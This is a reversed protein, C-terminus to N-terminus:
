HPSLETDLESEGEVYFREEIERQPIDHCVLTATERVFWRGAPALVFWFAAQALLFTSYSPAFALADCTVVASAPVSLWLFVRQARAVRLPARVALRALADARM